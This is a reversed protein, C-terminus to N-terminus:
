DEIVNEVSPQEIVIINRTIKRLTNTTSKELAFCIESKNKTIRWIVKLLLRVLFYYEM